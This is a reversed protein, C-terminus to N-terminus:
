DTFQALTDVVFNNIGKTQSRTMKQRDGQKFSQGYGLTCVQAVASTDASSPTLCFFFNSLGERLKVINCERVGKRTSSYKGGKKDTSRVLPYRPMRQCASIDDPM